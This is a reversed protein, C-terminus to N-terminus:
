SLEHKEISPSLSWLLHWWIEQTYQKYLSIEGSLLDIVNGKEWFGKREYFSFLSRSCGITPKIVEGPAQSSAAGISPHNEILSCAHAHSCLVERGRLPGEPPFWLSARKQRKILMQKEFILFHSIILAGHPWSAECSILNSISLCQAGKWFSQKMIFAAEKSRCLWEKGM